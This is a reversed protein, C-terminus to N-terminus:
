TTCFVTLSRARSWVEGSLESSSTGALAGAIVLGEGSCGQRFLDPDLAIDLDRTGVDLVSKADESAAEIYITATVSLRTVHGIIEEGDDAVEVVCRPMGITEASFDEVAPFQLLNDTLYNVANKKLQEAIM